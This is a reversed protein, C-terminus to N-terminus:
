EVFSRRYIPPKGRKIAAMEVCVKVDIANSESVEISLSLGGIMVLSMM